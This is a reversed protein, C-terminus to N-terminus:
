PPCIAFMIYIYMCTNVYIYISIYIYTYTCLYQMGMSYCCTPTVNGTSLLLVNMSQTPKSLILPINNNNNNSDQTVHKTSSDVGIQQFFNTDDSLLLHRQRRKRTTKATLIWFQRLSIYISIALNCLGQRFYFFINTLFQTTSNLGADGQSLM